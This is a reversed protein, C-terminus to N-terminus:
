TNGISSRYRLHDGMARTLSMVQPSHMLPEFPGFVPVKRAELFAEAAQKQEDTYKEPPITPLRVSASDTSPAAATPKMPFGTSLTSAFTCRPERM